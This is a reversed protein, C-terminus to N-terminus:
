VIIKESVIWAEATICDKGTAKGYRLQKITKVM